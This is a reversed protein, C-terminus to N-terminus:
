IARTAVPSSDPHHMGTSSSQRTSVQTDDTDGPFPCNRPVKSHVSIVSPM